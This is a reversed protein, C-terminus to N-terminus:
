RLYADRLILRQRESIENGPSGFFTERKLAEGLKEIRFSQLKMELHRTPPEQFALLAIEAHKDGYILCSGKNTSIALHKATIWWPRETRSMTPQKAFAVINRKVFSDYDKQDTSDTVFFAADWWKEIPGDLDALQVIAAVTSGDYHLLLKLLEVLDGMLLFEFDMVHIDRFGSALVRHPIQATVDINARLQQLATNQLETTM